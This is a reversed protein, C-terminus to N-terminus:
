KQEVYWWCKKWDPNDASIDNQVIAFLLNITLSYFFETEMINKDSSTDRDESDMIQNSQKM